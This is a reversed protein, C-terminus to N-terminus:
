PRGRLLYGGPPRRARFFKAFLYKQACFFKKQHRWLQFVPLRIWKRDVAYAASPWPARRTSIEPGHWTQTDTSVEISLEMKRRTIDMHYFSSSASDIGRRSSRLVKLIRLRPPSYQPQHADFASPIMSILRWIVSCRDFVYNKVKPAFPFTSIHKM